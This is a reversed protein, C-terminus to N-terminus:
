WVCCYLVQRVLAATFKVTVIETPMHRSVHLFVGSNEDASPWINLTGNGMSQKAELLLMLGDGVAGQSSLILDACTIAFSCNDTLFSAVGSTTEQHQYLVSGYVTRSEVISHINGDSPLRLLVCLLLYSSTLAAHPPPHLSRKSFSFDVFYVRDNSHDYLINAPKIDNHVIGLAQMDQLAKAILHCIRLMLVGPKWHNRDDAFSRLDVVTPGLYVMVTFLTGDDVVSWLVPM